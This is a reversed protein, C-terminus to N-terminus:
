EENGTKKSGFMRCWAAADLIGLLMKSFRNVRRRQLNMVNFVVCSEGYLPCLSKLFFCLDEQISNVPLDNEIVVKNKQFDQFM